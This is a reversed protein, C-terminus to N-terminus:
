RAKNGRLRNHQVNNVERNIERRRRYREILINRYRAPKIHIPNVSPAAACGCQENWWTRLQEHQFRAMNTFGRALSAHAGKKWNAIDLHHPAVQLVVLM